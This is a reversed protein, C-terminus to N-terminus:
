KFDTVLKEFAEAMALGDAFGKKLKRSADRVAKVATSFKKRAAAIDGKKAEGKEAAVEAEALENDATKLKGVLDEGEEGLDVIVLFVTENDHESIEKILDAAQDLLPKEQKPKKAM